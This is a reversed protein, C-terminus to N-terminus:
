QRNTHSGWELNSADRISEDETLNEPARSTQFPLITGYKISLFIVFYKFLTQSKLYKPNKLFSLPPFGFLGHHPQPDGKDTVSKAMSLPCYPPQGIASKWRWSQTIHQPHLTVFRPVQNPNLSIIPQKTYPLPATM